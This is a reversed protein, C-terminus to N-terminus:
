ATSDESSPYLNRCEECTHPGATVFMHRVVEVESKPIGCLTGNPGMAHELGVIQQRGHTTTIGRVGSSNDDQEGIPVIDTRRYAAARRTEPVMGNQVSFSQGVRATRLRNTIPYTVGEASRTDRGSSAM